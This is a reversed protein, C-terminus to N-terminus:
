QRPPYEGRYHALERTMQEPTAWHPNSGTPTRLPATPLAAGAIPMENWQRGDLLRGARKKGVRWVQQTGPHETGYGCPGHGDARWGDPAVQAVRSSGSNDWSWEGQQKFFFPVGSAQCQDRIARPWAPHMPRAGPGSEGGVIVWHLHDILRADPRHLVPQHLDIPALLPELSVFRVVAPITILHHIRWLYLPDEVSVGLWLNSADQNAPYSLMIEAMREPRKTLIQYTHQPTARIITLVRLIFDLDVHEHFLDGMSSVFVMRPKRWRFPIELRDDRTTVQFQHPAAPYGHRGALRKAMREAYCNSCGPSLKTCGHVVNWTTDTWEIKTM